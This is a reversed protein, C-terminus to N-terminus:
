IQPPEPIEARMWYGNTNEMFNGETVFMFRFPRANVLYQRVYKSDNKNSFPDGYFWYYGDQIPIENSWTNNKKM